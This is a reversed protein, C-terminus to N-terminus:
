SVEHLQLGLGQLALVESDKTKYIKVLNECVIIDETQKDELM